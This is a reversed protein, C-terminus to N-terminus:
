TRQQIFYIWKKNFEEIPFRRAFEYGSESLEKKSELNELLYTVKGKLESFHECIIQGGGKLLDGLGCLGSGIVPTKLLMAEHATRGWGEKLKSMALVVASAKLLVLYERKSLDLNRAPINVRREGSTVAHASIGSLAEYAEVVGKIKQCNGLYVIPKDMLDYRKKFSEVEEDPIEYDALDFGNPILSVNSYGLDLFHRRWYESVTVIHDIKKLNHYFLKTLFFFFLRSWLPFGSFDVHHIMAIQLGKTRDLSMTLVSYFDRIWIDKKGKLFLLRVLSEVLKLPRLFTMFKAQCNILEVSHQSALAHRAQENYVNGGYQKLSIEIWAISMDKSVV